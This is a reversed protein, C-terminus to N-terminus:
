RAPHGAEGWQMWEADTWPRWGRTKPDISGGYMGLDSMRKEAARAGATARRSPENRELWHWGWRSTWPDTAGAFLLAVARCEPRESLNYRLWLPSKTMGPWGLSCRYKVDHEYHQDSIGNMPGLWQRGLAGFAAADGNSAKTAAQWLAKWALQIGDEYHDSRSMGGLDELAAKENGAASHLKFLHSWGFANRPELEVLRAAYTEPKCGNVMPCTALAVRTAEASRDSALSALLRTAQQLDNSLPDFSMREPTGVVSSESYQRNIANAAYLNAALARDLAEPSTALRGALARVHAEDREFARVDRWHQYHLSAAFYGDLFRKSIAGQFFWVCTLLVLAVVAHRAKPMLPEEFHAGALSSAMDPAFDMAFLRWMSRQGNSVERCRDRFAQQMEEGHRERIRRPYLQLLLAYGGEAARQWRPPSM